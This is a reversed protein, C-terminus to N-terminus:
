GASLRVIQPNQVHVFCSRGTFVGQPAPLNTNVLAATEKGTKNCIPGPDTVEDM